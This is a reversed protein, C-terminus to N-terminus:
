LSFEANKGAASADAIFFIVPYKKEPSYDEPFRINYNITKGTEDDSFTKVQFKNISENILAQLEQDGSKDTRFMNMRAESTVCM